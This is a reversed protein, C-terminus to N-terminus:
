PRRGTIRSDQRPRPRSKMKMAIAVESDISNMPRTMEPMAEALKVV